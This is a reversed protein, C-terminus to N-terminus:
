LQDFLEFVKGKVPVSVNRSELDNIREIFYWILEKRRKKDDCLEAQVKLEDYIINWDVGRKILDISDEVDNQRDPSLSKFIVIDEKSCIHVKLFKLELVKESREIMGKSLCFGKIVTKVFLDFRFEDKELMAFIDLKDFTLPKRMITFGLKELANKYSEFQKNNEFVVDVDKTYGKGVGHHLLAAGGIIFLSVKEDLKENIKEFLEKLDEFKYIM